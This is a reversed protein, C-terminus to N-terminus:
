LAPAAAAVPLRLEFVSGGGEAAAASVTGGHDEAVQRVIALGLGSGSRDRTHAGRFFRDFVHPLEDAPIGPGHDRVRLVGDHLSVEVPAGEPSYKAANDLLNNIARTLRGSAGHVVTEDLDIFFRTGPAHRSARDLADGVLEDLRVVERGETPQDGRALEIVDNMLVTLEETQVVVTDLLEGRKEESLEQGRTRLIEINTRLSTIPTRLEHSADAVLQRQARVSEDLEGVSTELADLMANFTTALSAIEDTGSADIRSALDRTRAVHEAADTLRALPATARLAVWRGLAVALAIGGVLALAFILRLRDLVSDVESLSRGVALAGYGPVPQLAVRVSDGGVKQDYLTVDTGSGGAVASAKASSPLVIRQSAGDDGGATQLRAAGTTDYIQLYANPDGPRGPPGGGGQLMRGLGLGAPTHVIEDIRQRLSDDVQGRLEGRVTMYGLVSALVIAIAVAGGSMLTLRRRFTM